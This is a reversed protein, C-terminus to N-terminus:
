QGESRGEGEEEEGEGKGSEVHYQAEGRAM